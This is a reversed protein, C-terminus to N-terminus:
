SQLINVVPVTEKSYVMGPPIDLGQIAQSKVTPSEMSNMHTELTGGLKSSKLMTVNSSDNSM